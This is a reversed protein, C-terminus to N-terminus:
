YMRSVEADSSFIVAVNGDYSAKVDGDSSRFSVKQAGYKRKMLSLAAAYARSDPSHSGSLSKSYICCGGVDGSLAVAARVSNDGGIRIANLISGLDAGRGDNCMMLAYDAGCVSIVETRLEGAIREGIHTAPSSIRTIYENQCGVYVTRKGAPMDIDYESAPYGLVRKIYVALARELDPIFIGAGGSVSFDAEDSFSVRLAGKPIQEGSGCPDSAFVFGSGLTSIRFLKM